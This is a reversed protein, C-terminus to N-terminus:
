LETCIGLDCCSPCWVVCWRPLFIGFRAGFIHEPKDIMLIVRCSFKPWFVDCKKENHHCFHQFFDPTLMLHTGPSESYPDSQLLRRWLGTPLTDSTSLKVQSSSGEGGQVLFLDARQQDGLYLSVLIGRTSTMMNQSYYGCYRM